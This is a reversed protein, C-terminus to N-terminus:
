LQLSFSTLRVTIDTAPTTAATSCLVRYNSFPSQIDAAGYALSQVARGGHYARSAGLNALSVQFGTTVPASGEAAAYLIYDSTGGTAKIPGAFASIDLIFPYEYAQVPNLINDALAVYKNNAVSGSAQFVYQNRHWVSEILEPNDPPTSGLNLCAGSLRMAVNATYDVDRRRVGVDCITSSADMTHSVFVRHGTIDAVNFSILSESVGDNIFVCYDGNSAAGQAIHVSFCITKSKLYNLIPTVSGIAQKIGGANKTTTMQCSTHGFTTTTSKVFASADASQDEWIGLTEGGAVSYNWIAFDPSLLFNKQSITNLIPSNEPDPIYTKALTGKSGRLDDLYMIYGAGGTDVRKIVIRVFTAAADITKRRITYIYSGTGTIPTAVSGGSGADDEIYCTYTRGTAMLVPIVATFSKGQLSTVYDTKVYCYLEYGNTSPSWKCSYDESLLNLQSREVESSDTGSWGDPFGYGTAWVEAGGNNLYITAVDEDILVTDAALNANDVVDADLAGTGAHTTANWDTLAAFATELAPVVTGIKATDTNSIPLDDANFALAAAGTAIQDKGVSWNSNTSGGIFGYFDSAVYVTYDTVIAGQCQSAASIIATDNASCQIYWGHGTKDVVNIKMAADFVGTPFVLTAQALVTVISDPTAARGATLAAQLDVYDQGFWAADAAKLPNSVEGPNLNDADTLAYTTFDRPTTFDGM